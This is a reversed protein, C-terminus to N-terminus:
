SEILFLEIININFLLPAIISDQAVGFIIDPIESHFSGAKKLNTKKSLYAYIVLPYSIIVFLM